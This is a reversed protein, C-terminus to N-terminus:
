TPAPRWAPADLDRRRRSMRLLSNSYPVHVAYVIETAHLTEPRDHAFLIFRSKVSFPLPTNQTQLPTEPVSQSGQIRESVRDLPHIRDIVQPHTVVLTPELTHFTPRFFCTDECCLFYARPDGTGWPRAM